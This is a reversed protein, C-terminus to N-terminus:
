FGEYRKLQNGSNNYRKSCYTAGTKPKEWTNLSMYKKKVKYKNFKNM